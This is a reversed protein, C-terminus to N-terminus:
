AAILSREIKVIGENENLKPRKRKRLQNLWAQPKRSIKRKREGKPHCIKKKRQCRVM